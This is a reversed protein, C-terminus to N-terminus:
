AFVAAGVGREAVSAERRIPTKGQSLSDRASSSRRGSLNAPLDQPDAALLTAAGIRRSSRGGSMWRPDSVGTAVLFLDVRMTRMAHCRRRSMSVAEVPSASGGLRGPVFNKVFLMDGTWGDASSGGGSTISFGSHYM